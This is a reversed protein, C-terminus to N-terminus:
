YTVAVMCHKDAYVFSYM